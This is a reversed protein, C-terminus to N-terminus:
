QFGLYGVRTMRSRAQAFPANGTVGDSDIRTRVQNRERLSRTEPGYPKARLTERGEVSDEPLVRALGRL